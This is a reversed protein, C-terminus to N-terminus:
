GFLGGSSISGTRSRRDCGKSHNQVERVARHATKQVLLCVLRWRGRAPRSGRVFELLIDLDTLLLRRSCCRVSDALACCCLLDMDTHLRQRPLGNRKVHVSQLENFTHLRLDLLLLANRRVLLTQYTLALLQVTAACQVVVSDVLPAFQGKQQSQATAGREVDKKATGPCRRANHVDFLVIVDLHELLLDFLGSADGHATLNESRFSLIQEHSAADTLVAKRRTAAADVEMYLLGRPRVGMRVPHFLELDDLWRRSTCDRAEGAYRDICEPGPVTALLRLVEDQGMGTSVM